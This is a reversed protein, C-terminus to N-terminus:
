DNLHGYVRALDKLDCNNLCYNIAEEATVEGSHFAATAAAVTAYTMDGNDEAMEVADQWQEAVADGQPENLELGEIAEALVAKDEDSLNEMEEDSPEDEEVPKKPQVQEPTSQSYANLLWDVAANVESLDGSAFAADLNQVIDPSLNGNAWSLAPQLQDNVTFLGDVYEDMDFGSPVSDELEVNEFVHHQNGYRDIIYDNEWNKSMGDRGVASDHGTNLSFDTIVEQGSATESYVPSVTYGQNPM